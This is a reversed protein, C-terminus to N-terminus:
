SLEEFKEVEGFSNYSYASKDRGQEDFETSSIMKGAADFQVEYILKDDLYSLAKRCVGDEYDFFTEMGSIKDTVQQVKGNFLVTIAEDTNLVVEGEPEESAEVSYPEESLAPTPTQESVVAVDSSASDKMQQAVLASLAKIESLAEAAVGDNAPLTEARAKLTEAIDRSATLQQETLELQQAFETALRQHADAIVVVESQFKAQIALAAQQVAQQTVQLGDRVSSNNDAILGQVKVSADTIAALQEATEGSKLNLMDQMQQLSQSVSQGIEQQGTNLGEEADSIASQLSSELTQLGKLLTNLNDESCQSAKSSAINLAELYREETDLFCSEVNAGLAQLGSQTTNMETEVLGYLGDYADTVASINRESASSVHLELDDSLEQLATSIWLNGEKLSEQAATIVRETNIETKQALTKIDSLVVHQNGHLQSLIKNETEQLVERGLRAKEAQDEILENRLTSQHDIVSEFQGSSLKELHELATTLVQHRDQANADVTGIHERQSSHIEHLSASLDILLARVNEATESIRSDTKESHQQLSKHLDGTSVLQQSLLYRLQSEQDRRIGAERKMQDQLLTIQQILLQKIAEHLASVREAYSSIQSSFEDNLVQESKRHADSIATQLTQKLQEQHQTLAAQASTLQKDQKELSDSHHTYQANLTSKLEASHNTIQDQLHGSEVKIVQSVSQVTNAVSSGLQRLEQMQKHQQKKLLEIEDQISAEVGHLNQLQQKAQEAGSTVLSELQSGLRQEALSIAESDALHAQHIKTDLASIDKELTSVVAEQTERVSRQITLDSREIRDSLLSFSENHFQSFQGLQEYVSQLEKKTENQQQVFMDKLDSLQACFDAQHQASKNRNTILLLTIVCGFVVLMVGIYSNLLAM